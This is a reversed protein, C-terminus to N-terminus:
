LEVMLLLDASQVIEDRLEVCFPVDLELVVSDELLLSFVVESLYCSQTGLDLPETDGELLCPFYLGVCLM